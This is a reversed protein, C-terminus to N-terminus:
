SKMVDLFELCVFLNTAKTNKSKSILRMEGGVAVIELLVVFNDGYTRFLPIILM